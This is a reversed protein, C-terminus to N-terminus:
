PRCQERMATALSPSHAQGEHGFAGEALLIFAVVGPIKNQKFEKHVSMLGTHSKEDGPFRDILVTNVADVHENKTSLIARERMYKSSTCNYCLDPFIREVLGDIPNNGTTKKKEKNDERSWPLMIDDPLRVYDDGFTKETGNGIRLLYEAFWNDSQARMNQTLRIRRVSKWIYSRLLTADTIQARTGRAVVPLVQRFDGGFLMVKGGFPHSSGMTDRLARDPAEVCQRKTMAVEDWIIVCGKTTIRSYGSQKTFNCMTNDGLKIPIKFRSHATRGGPMISAAIGSTATAIAIRDMSRVKALLAKYLYTKGTGGPGDVFFVQSKNNVVHDLIDDFGARKETNLTDIIKLDKEEFGINLEENLERYYDRTAVNDSKDLKPLGYDKIDKGMSTLHDSLDALLMQELMTHNKMTRRYDETMSDFHKDYLTRANACECYALITAFLRRLANPMRHEAAETLSDDLSKDTEVFGMAECAARFTPYTVGKFSKLHEFSTAGRVHNLLVRLYFREGEAPNAYVLRGIQARQKRPVWQKNAKIWRFHEPFERYLYKRAEMNELNMRFVETLMSKQSKERQVVDSLDDTAKYAVMHMGPLHVQMQLVPPSMSYLPFGFIRYVAEIATIMRANRYQKIENIEIGDDGQHGLAFSAM